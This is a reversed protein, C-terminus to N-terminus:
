NIIIMDAIIRYIEILYCKIMDGSSVCIKIFQVDKMQSIYYQQLLM